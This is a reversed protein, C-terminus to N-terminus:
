LYSHPAPYCILCICLMDFAKCYELYSIDTVRRKNVSKTVGIYLAVMNTLYSRGKTFGCQGKHTLEENHVCRLIVELLIQEMIKGSVSVLSVLRHTRPDEKRGKKFNPTINGKLWDSSDESSLWSKKFIISLRKTLVDALEKLVTPHM